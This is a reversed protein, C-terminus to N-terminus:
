IRDLEGSVEKGPHMREKFRSTKEDLLESSSKQKQNKRAKLFFYGLLGVVVLLLLVGYIWNSNSKNKEICDAKCCSGELSSTVTGNCEQNELCIKGFYTCSLSESIGTGATINAKTKNETIEFSLPIIARSGGYDAIVEGSFNAKNKISVTINVRASEGPKLLGISDPKIVSNFNNSITINTLNEEGSNQLVITFFYDQNYVLIGTLREPNTDLRRIGAGDSNNIKRTIFVPINYNNIKLNTQSVKIGSISFKIKEETEEPLSINKEVGELSLSVKQSTDLSKIKIEFDQNTFIFGPNISLVSQNTKKTTFNIMLADKKIEGSSIYEANEIKLTYNSEKNPLIAYFYYQNNQKTLGKILPESHIKDNEYIFVNDPTLSIFNGKIEAQLTERPAYSEKSLSIDVAIINPIILLALFLIFIRGKKIKM